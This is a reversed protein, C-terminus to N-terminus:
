DLRYGVKLSKDKNMEGTLRMNISKGEKHTFLRSLNETEDQTVKPLEQM